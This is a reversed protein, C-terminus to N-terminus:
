LYYGNDGDSDAPKTLISAERHGAEDTLAFDAASSANIGAIPCLSINYQITDFVLPNFVYMYVYVPIYISM